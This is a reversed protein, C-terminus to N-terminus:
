VAFKTPDIWGLRIAALMVMAVGIVTIVLAGFVPLKAELALYLRSKTSRRKENLYAKTNVLVLGITALVTALGLSFVLIMVLGAFYLQQSFAVLGIVFASPCPVVGGLIGLRLVEWRTMLAPDRGHHHDHAHDHGHDHGHGHDHSHDHSHGHDHPVHGSATSAHGNAAKLDPESDHAHTHDHSHDHSGDTHRGFADHEHAHGGARKLALGFGMLLFTAGVAFTILEAIQKHPDELAGPWIKIAAWAGGMLLFV